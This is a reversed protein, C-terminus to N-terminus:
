LLLLIGFTPGLEFVSAACCRQPRRVPRGHPGCRYAAGSPGPSQLGCQQSAPGQSFAGPRSERHRDQHGRGPRADAVPRVRTDGPIRRGAAASNDCFQCNLVGTRAQVNVSFITFRVPTYRKRPAQRDHTYNAESPKPRSHMLGVGRPQYVVVRAEEGGPSPRGKQPPTQDSPRSPDGWKPM